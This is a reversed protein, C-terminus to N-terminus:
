KIGGLKKDIKISNGVLGKFVLTVMLNPAM